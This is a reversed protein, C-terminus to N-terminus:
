AVFVINSFDRLYNIWGSCRKRLGLWTNKKGLGLWVTLQHHRDRKGAAPESSTLKPTM